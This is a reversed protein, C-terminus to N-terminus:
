IDMYSSTLKFAEDVANKASAVVSYNCCNKELFDSKILMDVVGGTDRILIVPKGIIIGFSIENLTGWGGGLAIMCQGAAVVLSNRRNGLATPIAINIYKNADDINEGPLIGIIKGNKKKVGKSVAEMIGGRGGCIVTGKRPAILEGIQEAIELCYLCLYCEIVSNSGFRPNHLQKNM